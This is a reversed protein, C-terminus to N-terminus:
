VSSGHHAVDVPISCVVDYQLPFALRERSAPTVEMSAFEHRTSDFALHHRRQTVSRHQQSVHRAITQGVEDRDAVLISRGPVTRSKQSDSDAIARAAEAVVLSLHEAPGICRAYQVRGNGVELQGIDVAVHFSVDDSKL